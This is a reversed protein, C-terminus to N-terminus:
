PVGMPRPPIRTNPLDFMRDCQGSLYEVNLRNSYFFFFFLFFFFFFFVFFFFFFFFFFLRGGHTVALTWLWPDVLELAAAVAPSSWSKNGKHLTLQASPSIKAM